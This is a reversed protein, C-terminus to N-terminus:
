LTMLSVRSWLDGENAVILAENVHIMCLVGPICPPFTQTLQKGEPIMYIGIGQSSKIKHENNFKDLQVPKVNNIPYAAGIKTVRILCHKLSYLSIKM